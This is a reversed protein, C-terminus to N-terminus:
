TLNTTQYLSKLEKIVGTFAKMASKNRKSINIDSQQLLDELLSHYKEKIKNGARELIFPEKVGMTLLFNYDEVDNNKFAVFRQYLDVTLGM